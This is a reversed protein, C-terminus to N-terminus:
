KFDLDFKLKEAARVGLLLVGLIFKTSLETVGSKCAIALLFDSYYFRTRVHSAIFSIVEDRDVQSRGTGQQRQFRDDSTFMHDVQIRLICTNEKLEEADEDAERRLRNYHHEMPQEYMEQSDYSFSQNSEHNMEICKTEPMDIEKEHYIISHAM